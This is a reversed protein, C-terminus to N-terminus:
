FSTPFVRFGRLPAPLLASKEPAPPVPPAGVAPAPEAIPTPPTPQGTAHGHGNCSTCGNSAGCDCGSSSACGLGCRRHLGHRHGWGGCGCAHRHHHGWGILCGPGCGGGAFTNSGCGCGGVAGAYCGGGNGCTACGHHLGRFCTRYYGKWVNSCCPNVNDCCQGAFPYGHYENIAPSPTVPPAPVETAPQPQADQITSVVRGVPYRPVGARLSPRAYGDAYAAQSASWLAVALPILFRNM